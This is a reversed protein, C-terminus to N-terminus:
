HGENNTLDSGTRVFRTRSSSARRIRTIAKEAHSLRAARCLTALDGSANLISEVRRGNNVGQDDWIERRARSDRLRWRERFTVRASRGHIQRGTAQYIKIYLISGRNITRREGSSHTRHSITAFADRNNWIERSSRIALNVSNRTSEAIRFLRRRLTKTSARASNRQRNSEELLRSIAPLVDLAM